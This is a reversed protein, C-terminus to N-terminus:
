VRGYVTRRAAERIEAIFRDQSFREARGRIVAPDLPEDAARQVARRVDEVRTTSSCGVPRATTVIDAAGGEQLSIVPTGCAQAEAMAIGFDENAPFVLARASRYLDRLREDAM